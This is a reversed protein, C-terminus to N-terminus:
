PNVVNQPKGDLFCRVNDAVTDLLRKRSELPAWAMHPTILCNPATLLPNNKRIPEVTVVDMAAGRIKGSALADAVAQEDLLAGRSTNLLLVGGKMKAINERSIINQTEPFLPCHLSIVDARAYLEDLTVYEAIAKGEETPRSGAALVTMGFAKAIRGMAQGIRGFGIIGITKGALEVLPYDWFCFDACSSWRGSRVAEAHHGVRNTIELLLAFAAQAVAATGYSPINTVPIGHRKAADIDAINYGTSLLGVYRISPCRNFIEATLPTKNTFVIEADGIRRIIEEVDTKPTRDYVTLTGLAELGSWSLDGPNETYGDLIVIKM